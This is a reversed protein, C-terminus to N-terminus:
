KNHYTNNNSQKRDVYHLPQEIAENDDDDWIKEYNLKEKESLNLYDEESISNAKNSKLVFM